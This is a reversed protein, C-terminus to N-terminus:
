RWMGGGALALGSVKAAGAQKLAQACADMTAGSTFIDDVLLIHRDKVELPRTVSFAGKVNRRREALSLEWQPLTERRRVLLDTQWAGPFANRCWPGFIRETQNYGREALRGASLPVPMVWECDPLTRGGLARALLWTLAAVHREDRRFKMDHLLRKLGYAYEYLILCDDLAKLRRAQVAAELPTRSIVHLCRVCWAGQEIVASRCVPCKPPYVLDLWAAWLKKLM